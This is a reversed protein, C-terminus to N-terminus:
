LLHVTRLFSHIMKRERTAPSKWWYDTYEKNDPLVALFLMQVTLLILRSSIQVIKKEISNKEHFDMGVPFQDKLHAFYNRIEAVLYIGRSSRSAFKMSRISKQSRIVASFRLQHKLDRVLGNFGILNKHPEYSDHLINGVGKIDPNILLDSVLFEYASWILSFITLNFVHDAGARDNGNRMYQFIDDSGSRIQEKSHAELQVKKIRSALRLWEASTKLYIKEPQQHYNYICFYSLDFCHNHLDKFKYKIM